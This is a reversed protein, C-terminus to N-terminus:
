YFTCEFKKGTPFINIYIVCIYRICIYCSIYSLYYKYLLQGYNFFLHVSSLVDMFFRYLYSIRTHRPLRCTVDANSTTHLSHGFLILSAGVDLQQYLGWGFWTVTCFIRGGTFYCVLIPSHWETWAELECKLLTCCIIGSSFPVVYSSLTTTM